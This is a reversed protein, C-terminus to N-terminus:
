FLPFLLVHAECGPEGGFGGEFTQCSSLWEGCRDFLGPTDAIGSMHAVAVACYGTSFDFLLETLFTSFHNCVEVRTQKAGTTFLLHVM